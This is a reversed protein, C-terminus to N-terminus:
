GDYKNTRLTKNECGRSPPPKHLKRSGRRSHSRYSRKRRRRSSSPEAAPLSAMRNAFEDPGLTRTFIGAHFSGGTVDAPKEKGIRAISRSL